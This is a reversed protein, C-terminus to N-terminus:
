CLSSFFSFFYCCSATHSHVCEYVCVRVCLTSVLLYMCIFFCIGSNFIILGKDFCDEYNLGSASVIGAIILRRPLVILDLVCTSCLYICYSGLIGFEFENASKNIKIYVNM